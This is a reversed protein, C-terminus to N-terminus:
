KVTGSSKLRVVTWLPWHDSLSIKKDIGHSTAELGRLWIWDLKLRIPILLITRLFTSKGNAFPTTFNERVFLESTKKVSDSEWTNLDGLIIARMHKPYHALDELVAKTQEIKKKVPARNESHVSYVRLPTGGIDVTAGVAVRRRRGPGPHPLVIRRVDTLPYSSLIAVGTEEEMGPKSTPPAAWAYYRGLKEAILRVTNLNSTRQKNRDVEQLGVISAGGIESDHKFLKILEELKDGGRWRINYSVVKIDVPAKPADALTTARGTELLESVPTPSSQPFGTTASFLSACLLSLLIFRMIPRSKSRRLVEAFGAAKFASPIGHWLFPDPMNEMSPEVPYGEVIKAGRKAAFDVASSLLQTSVGKRRYAKKIFLCSISWVTQDDVPKLIRSRELAVYDERPAVACWAVPEKGFYGLLGPERDATVIKKLARKNGSGKGADFEKRPLRWFMCWCGGCAGREGFLEELDSWRAANCPHFKLDPARNIPRAMKMSNQQFTSALSV